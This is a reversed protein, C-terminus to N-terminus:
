CTGAQFSSACLLVLDVGSDIVKEYSDFGIFCKEDPVEVNRQTKLQERCQDLKDQFIDGLAAIELNPGADLFNIAAGTGRGGCGILGAKLVKGDPAQTLLTPLKIEKKKQGGSCSSLLKVSGVTGIAALASRSIFKRRDLGSNGKLDDNKVKEM